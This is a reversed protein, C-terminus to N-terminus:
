RANQRARSAPIAEGSRRRDPARPRANDVKAEGPRHLLREAFGGFRDIM